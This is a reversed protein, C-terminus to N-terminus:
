VRVNCFHIYIEEDIPEKNYVYDIFVVVIHKIKHKTKKNRKIDTLILFAPGSM